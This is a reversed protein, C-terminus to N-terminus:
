PPNVGLPKRGPRQVGGRHQLLLAAGAPLLGRQYINTAQVAEAGPCFFCREGKMSPTFNEPTAGVAAKKPIGKKQRAGTLGNM